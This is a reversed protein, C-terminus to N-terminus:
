MTGSWFSRQQLTGNQAGVGGLELVVGPGVSLGGVPGPPTM